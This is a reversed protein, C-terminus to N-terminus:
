KDTGHFCVERIYIREKLTHHQPLTSLFGLFHLGKIHTHTSINFHKSSSSVLRATLSHLLHQEQSLMRHLVKDTHRVTSRVM